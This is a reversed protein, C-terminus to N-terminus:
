MVSPFSSDVFSARQSPVTQSLLAPDSPVMALTLPDGCNSNYLEKHRPLDPNDLGSVLRIVRRTEAENSISQRLDSPLFSLPDLRRGFPFFLFLTPRRGCRPLLVGSFDFPPRPLRVASVDSVSM